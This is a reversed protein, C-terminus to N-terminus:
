TAVRDARGQKPVVFVTVPRPASAARRRGGGVREGARRDVPRNDVLEKEALIEEDRM